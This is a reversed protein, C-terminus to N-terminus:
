ITLRRVARARLESSEHLYNQYGDGFHQFWAYFERGAYQECSWYWDDEFEGKLNTYLLSQERRSPLEGGISEAWQIADKWKIENASGPLLILYHATTGDVNLIPGAYREGPELTITAEAIRITVKEATQTNM